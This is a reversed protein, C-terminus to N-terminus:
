RNCHSVRYKQGSYEICTAISVEIWTSESRNIDDLGADLEVWDGVVATQDTSEASDDSLLTSASEQGTEAWSGGTVEELSGELESSILEELLLGDAEDTKLSGGVVAGSDVESRGSQGLKESIDGKAWKLSGTDAENRVWSVGLSQHITSSLNELSLTETSEVSTESWEEELLLNEGYRCTGARFHRLRSIM